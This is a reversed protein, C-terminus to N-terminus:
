GAEPDYKPGLSPCRPPNPDIGFPVNEGDSFPQAGDYAGGLEDVRYDLATAVEEDAADEAVRCSALVLREGDRTTHESVAFGLDRVEQVFRARAEPEQVYLYFVLVPGDPALGTSRGSSDGCGSVLLWALTMVLGPGYEKV